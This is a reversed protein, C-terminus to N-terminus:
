FKGQEKHGGKIWYADMEKDLFEKRAEPDKPIREKGEHKGKGKNRDRRGGKFPRREKSGKFKGDQRKEGKEEKTGEKRLEALSINKKANKNKIDGKHADRDKKFDNKGHRFQQHCILLTGRKSSETTETETVVRKHNRTPTGSEKATAAM